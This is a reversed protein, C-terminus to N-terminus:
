CSRCVLRNYRRFNSKIITCVKKGKKSHYFEGSEEFFRVLIHIKLQFFLFKAVNVFALFFCPNYRGHKSKM